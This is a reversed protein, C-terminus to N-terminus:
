WMANRYLLEMLSYRRYTKCSIVEHSYVIYFCNDQMNLVIFWVIKYDIKNSGISFFM